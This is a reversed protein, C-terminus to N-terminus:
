ALELDILYATGRHESCVCNMNVMDGLVSVLALSVVVMRSNLGTWDRVVCGSIWTSSVARRSKCFDSMM